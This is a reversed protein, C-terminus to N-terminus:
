LFIALKVNREEILHLSDKLFLSPDFDDNPLTVCNSEDIFPFNHKLCLYKLIRNFNKMLVRNASWSEDRPIMGCIFVNIISSKKRLCSGINVIFEAINMLSDTFLKNTGCLLVVNKLWTPIVLNKAQWFM